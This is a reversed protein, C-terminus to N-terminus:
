KTKEMLGKQIQELEDTWLGKDKLFQVAGPHYPIAPNPDFMQEPSWGNLWPHIGHLKEYHTWLTDMIKYASDDSLYASAVFYNPYAIGVSNEAIYGKAKIVKFGASPVYKTVIDKIEKPVQDLQDISYDNLFPVSSLGVANHAEMMLPTSPVLAFAADVRNDRLADIATNYTATPIPTVDNWSMGNAELAATLVAQGIPSGAYESTLRKGKLDSMKKIGSDKRVAAATVEIINGRTLLRMNKIPEAYGQEGNFAWVMEPGNAFGLLVKGNNFPDTWATPGAFPQVSVQLDSNKSLVSALGSGASHTSSGVPTTAISLNQNNSGSGATQTQEAAGQTKTTNPQTEEKAGNGASGCASVLSLLSFILLVLFSNTMWKKMQFSM